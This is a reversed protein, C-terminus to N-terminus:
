CVLFKGPPVLKLERGRLYVSEAFVTGPTRTFSDTIKKQSKCSEKRKGEVNMKVTLDKKLKLEKIGEEIELDSM